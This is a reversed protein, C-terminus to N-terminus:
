RPTAPVGDWRRAAPLPPASRVPEAPGTRLWSAFLGAGAIVAAMGGFAWMIVGAIQQDSLAAARSSRLYAPYWPNPALVLASGLAIGPVSGILAAIAAAGRRSRPGNAVSWWAATAVGLFSLHELAHLGSNHLAAQYLDPLHWTWMVAAEIILTAGVWFPYHVSHARLLRRYRRLAVSRAKDPLAWLLTPTPRGLALLPGAVALLLVHQVMHASFSTDARRDLPSTLAVAVALLGCAFSAISVPSPRRPTSPAGAPRTPLRSRSRSLGAWYAMGAAAVATAAGPDAVVTAIM